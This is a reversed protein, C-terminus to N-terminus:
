HLGSDRDQRRLGLRDRCWVDYDYHTEPIEASVSQRGPLADPTM